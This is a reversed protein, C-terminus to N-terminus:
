LPKREITKLSGDALTRAGVSPPEQTPWPQRYRVGAERLRKSVLPGTCGLRAAIKAISLGEELYLRVMEDASFQRASGGIVAIARALTFASPDLVTVSNDGWEIWSM